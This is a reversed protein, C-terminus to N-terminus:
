PHCLEREPTGEFRPKRRTSPQSVSECAPYDRRLFAIFDALMQRAINERV